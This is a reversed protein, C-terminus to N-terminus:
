NLSDYSCYSPHFVQVSKLYEANKFIIDRLKKEWITWQRAYTGKSSDSRLAFYFVKSFLKVNYFKREFKAIMLFDYM